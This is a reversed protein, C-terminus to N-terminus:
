AIMGGSFDLESGTLGPMALIAVLADAVEDPTVMRGIASREVFERRADAVTTGTREAELRFVRDM